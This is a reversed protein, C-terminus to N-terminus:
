SPGNGPDSIQPKLKWADVLGELLSIVVLGIDFSAIMLEVM